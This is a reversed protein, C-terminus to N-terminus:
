QYTHSRSKEQRETQESAGSDSEVVTQKESKKYRGDGATGSQAQDLVTNFFLSPGTLANKRSTPANVDIFVVGCARHRHGATGSAPSVSRSIELPIGIPSTKLSVKGESYRTRLLNPDAVIPLDWTQDDEVAGPTSAIERDREILNIEPRLPDTHTGFLRRLM